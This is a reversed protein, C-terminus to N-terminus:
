QLKSPTGSSPKQKQLYDDLQQISLPIEFYDASTKLFLYSSHEAQGASGTREQNIM